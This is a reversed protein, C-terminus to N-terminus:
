VTMLWRGLARTLVVVLLSVNISYTDEFLTHPFQSRHVCRAFDYDMAEPLEAAYDSIDSATSDINQWVIPIVGLSGNYNFIHTPRQSQSTTSLYGGFRTGFVMNSTVRSRACDDAAATSNLNVESAGLLPNLYM